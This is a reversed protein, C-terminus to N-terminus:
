TQRLDRRALLPFAAAILVPMSATGALNASNM